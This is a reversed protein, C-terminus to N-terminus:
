RGHRNRPRQCYETPYANLAWQQKQPASIATSRRCSPDAAAGVPWEPIRERGLGLRGDRGQHLGELPPDGLQLLPEALVGGVGGLGGRGIGGRDLSPGRGGGRALLPAPLGAMATVGPRQDRGLLEALDDLALRRVAAPAAVGQVAVVGLREPVLDGLHRRDLRHHVLVPEMAQGAGAAAGRGTRGQRRAHGGPREAGPQPGDEADQGPAVAQALPRDALQGGVQEPRDIEMPIIQGAPAAPRRRTPPGPRPVGALVDPVGGDAWMSSVEHHCPRSLAHSQTATVRSTVTKVM